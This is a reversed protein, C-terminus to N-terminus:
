IQHSNFFQISLIGPARPAVERVPANLACIGGLWHSRAKKSNLAVYRLIIYFFYCSKQRRACVCRDTTNNLTEMPHFLIINLINNDTHSSPTVISNVWTTQHPHRCFFTYGQYDASNITKHWNIPVGVVQSLTAIM